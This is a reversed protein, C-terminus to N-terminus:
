LLSQIYPECAAPSEDHNFRRFYNGNKDFLFKTFNWTVAFPGETAESVIWEYLPHTKSVIKQMIPFEVNFANKYLEKIEVSGGPEQFGFDNCPFALIVFNKDKYKQYLEQLEGLQKTFGCKSATNVILVVQGKYQSLNVENEDIDTVTFNHLNM